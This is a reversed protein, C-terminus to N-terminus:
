KSDLGTFRGWNTRNATWTGWAVASIDKNIRKRIGYLM